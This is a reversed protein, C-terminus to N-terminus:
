KNKLSVNKRFYVEYCNNPFEQINGSSTLESYSTSLSYNNNKYVLPNVKVIKDKHKEIYSYRAKLQGNFNKSQEVGNVVQFFCLMSLVLATSIYICRIGKEARLDIPILLVTGVLLLLFAGLYTRGTDAGVPSIIMVLTAAAGGTIFILGNGFNERDRWYIISTVVVVIVIAFFVLLLPFDDTMFGVLMTLGRYVKQYMSMESYTPVTLKLRIQSGPSILLLMFGIVSSIMGLILSISIKQKQIYKKIMLLICILIIAGSTNENGLGAVFGLIIVLIYHLINNKSNICIVLLFLLEFVSTALYNGVGSRWIFVSGFAPTFYFVCVSIVLIRIPYINKKYISKSLYFLIVLLIVFLVATCLSSFLAGKSLIIRTFTQGFFRGNSGFYDSIGLKLLSSWQVNAFYLDDNMYPTKYSWTFIIFFILLLYALLGGEEMLKKNNKISKM